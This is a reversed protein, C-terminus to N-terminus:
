INFDKKWNYFTNCYWIVKSESCVIIVKLLFYNKKKEEKIINIAEEKSINIIDEEKTIMDDWISIIKLNYPYKM